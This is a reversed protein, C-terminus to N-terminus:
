RLESRRGGELGPQGAARGPGARVSASVHQRFSPKVRVRQLIRRFMTQGAAAAAATVAAAPVRRAGKQPNSVVPPRSPRCGLRSPPPRPLPPPPRPKPPGSKGVPPSLSALVLWRPPLWRAGAQRAAGTVSLQASGGAQGGAQGPGLPPAAAVGGGRGTWGRLLRPRLLAPELSRGIPLPALTLSLAAPLQHRPKKRRRASPGRPEPGQEPIYLTAQHHLLHM